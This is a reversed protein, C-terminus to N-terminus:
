VQQMCEETSDAEYNTLLVIDKVLIWSVDIETYKKYGSVALTRRSSMFARNPSAVVAIGVGAVTASRPDNIPTPEGPDM